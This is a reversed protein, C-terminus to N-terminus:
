PIDQYTGPSAISEVIVKINQAMEETHFHIEFHFIKSRCIPLDFTARPYHHEQIFAETDKGEELRAAM